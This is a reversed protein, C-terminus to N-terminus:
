LNPWLIEQAAITPDASPYLAPRGLVDKLISFVAELQTRLRESAEVYEGQVGRRGFEKRGQQIATKLM